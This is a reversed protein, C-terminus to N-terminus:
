ETRTAETKDCIGLMERITPGPANDAESPIIQIQWDTLRKLSVRGWLPPIRSMWLSKVVNQM